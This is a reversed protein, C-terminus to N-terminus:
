GCGVGYGSVSNNKTTLPLWMVVCPTEVKIGVGHVINTTSNNSSNFIMIRNPSMKFQLQNASYAAYQSKLNNPDVCNSFVDNSLGTPQWSHCACHPYVSGQLQQPSTTPDETLGRKMVYWLANLEEENRMDIIDNNDRENSRWQNKTEDHLVAIANLKENRMNIIIGIPHYLWLPHSCQLM